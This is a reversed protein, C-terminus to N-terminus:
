TLFHFALHLMFTSVNGILHKAYDESNYYTPKADLRPLPPAMKVHLMAFIDFDDPSSKLLEFKYPDDPLRHYNGAFHHYKKPLCNRWPQQADFEADERRQLILANRHLEQFLEDVATEVYGVPYGMLNEREFVKLPRGHARKSAKKFDAFVYMRMSSREDLRTPSAMLCNAKAISNEESHVIHAPLKFGTELCSSPGLYSEVGDYVFREALRPPINTFFVRKRRTPSVYAADFEIPDFDVAFAERAEALDADKMLVNEAMFLLPHPSQLRELKRIFRGFELMLQGQQGKVGQRQANVASFDSCPAGGVVLDFAVL